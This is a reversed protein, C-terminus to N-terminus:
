PRLDKDLAGFVRARMLRLGVALIFLLGLSWVPLAQIAVFYALPAMVPFILLMLFAALRGGRPPEHVFLRPRILAVYGWVLANSLGILSLMVVYVLFGGSRPGGEYMLNTAVPVLTITGLLILNLVTLTLDASRFRGFM